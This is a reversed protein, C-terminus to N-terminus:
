DRREGMSDECLANMVEKGNEDTLISEDNAVNCAYFRKQAKLYEINNREM